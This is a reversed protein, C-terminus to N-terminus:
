GEASKGKQNHFSAQICFAFCSLRPLQKSRTSSPGASVYMCWGCPTFIYTCEHFWIRLGERQMNKIGNHHIKYMQFGVGCLRGPRQLFIEGRWGRLATPCQGLLFDASVQAPRQAKRFPQWCDSAAGSVQAVGQSTSTNIEASSQVWNSALFM